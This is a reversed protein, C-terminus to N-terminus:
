KEEEQLMDSNLSRMMQYIEEESQSKRVVEIFEDEMLLQAVSALIRIHMQNENHFPVLLAFCLDVKEDEQTWPIEKRNRIIIVTAQLISEHRCHPIAIGDLMATSFEEERQYFGRILGSAETACNEQVMKTSLFSFVEEQSDYNTNLYILNKTIVDKM